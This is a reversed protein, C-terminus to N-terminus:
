SDCGEYEFPSVFNSFAHAKQDKASLIVEVNEVGWDIALDPDNWSLAGECEPAYLASCKYVIETFPARTVFGHAFGGPILLQRGNEASLEHATWKGYTPSGRRIDVAVDLLSGRGCRVLKAQSHPPTQFHLGRVTGVEASLSHNDQVWDFDFGAEAYTKANWTEAFFGRSDGFRQPSIVVVGRLSTEKVQM